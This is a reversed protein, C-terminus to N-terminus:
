SRNESNGKSGLYNKIPFKKVMIQMSLFNGLADKQKREVQFQVHPNKYVKDIKGLIYNDTANNSYKDKQNRFIPTSPKCTM